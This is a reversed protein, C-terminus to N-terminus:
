GIIVTDNTDTLEAGLKECLNIIVYFFVIIELRKSKITYKKRIIMM